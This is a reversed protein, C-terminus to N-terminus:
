QQIKQQIPDWIGAPLETGQQQVVASGLLAGYRACDALEKQRSWGYLFGAAWLDGAGTTDVVEEAPVPDAHFLDDGSAIWAGRAGIKVAAIQCLAALERAMAPYDEGLGTFAAAEEE